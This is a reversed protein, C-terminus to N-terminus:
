SSRGTASPPNLPPLAPHVRTKGNKAPLKRTAQLLDGWAGVEDLSAPSGGYRVEGIRALAQKIATDQRPDYGGARDAWLDLANLCAVLDRNRIAELMSDRAFAVSALHRAQRDARYRVWRSEIPRWALWMLGIVAVCGIGIWILVRLSLDTAQRAVPADVTLAFGEVMATEVQGSELNFWDVSIANAAGEGGSQALYTVQEVRTGGIVGRDSTETLVPETPYTSIGQIAPTQVLPPIFMPATGKVTATVVRTISDGPALPATGGTVEQTLTLSTAGIFPDMGEAGIPLIGTVTIADVGARDERPANTDPDAWTVVLEQAPIQFQGPVMPMIRYRRSIGSWTEGDVSESVPNTAREPLRVNLNPAEFSPFVVPKPMWTPVLVTIRLDVAQGPVTEEASLEVRVLPAKTQALVSSALFLALIFLVLRMM